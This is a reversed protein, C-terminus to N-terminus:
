LTKGEMAALGAQLALRLEEEREPEKKMRELMNKVFIGRLSYEEAIIEYPISLRTQNTIKCFYLHDQLKERLIDTHILFDFSVNGGLIIKYLDSRGGTQKLIQTIIEEYSSPCDLEVTIIKYQRKCTKEFHLECLGKEITGSIVGKEGTEDFGTPEPIGPYAYWTKKVHQIGSFAHVHGLAIYDFGSAGIEPESVSYYQSGNLEGHVLLINLKEPNEITIDTLKPMDDSYSMGYIDAQPLSIKELTNGFIHVNDPLSVKRFPSAENYPDHNGLVIFVKTDPIKEFGASLNDMVNKDFQNSDLIDGCLLLVDAEKAMGCIRGLTELQESRRIEAAQGSLEAFSKNLHFDASHVLKMM